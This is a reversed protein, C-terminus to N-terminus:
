RTKLQNKVRVPFRGPEGIEKIRLLRFRVEKDGSNEITITGGIGATDNMSGITTANSLAQVIRRGAEIRAGRVKKAADWVLSAKDMLFEEELAVAIKEIIEEGGNPCIIDSDSDMWIEFTSDCREIDSERLQMKLEDMSLQSNELCVKWYRALTISEYDGEDELIKESIAKLLDGDSSTFLVDDGVKLDSVLVRDIEEDETNFVTLGSSLSFIGYGGGRFHIPRGLFTKEDPSRLANEAHWKRENTRNDFEQSDIEQSDTGQAKSVFQLMWKKDIKTTVKDTHDVEKILSSVNSDGIKSDFFSIANEFWASEISYLLVIFRSAKLSYLIRRMKDRGLWGSVIVLDYHADEKIFKQFCSVEIGAVEFDLKDIYKSLVSQYNEPDERDSIVYGISKGKIIEEKFVDNILCIEKDPSNPILVEDKFRKWLRNLQNALARDPLHPFVDDSMMEGITEDGDKIVEDLEEKTMSVSRKLADSVAVRLFVDSDDIKAQDEGKDGIALLEKFIPSIKDADSPVTLPYIKLDKFPKIEKIQEDNFFDLVNQEILGKNWIFPQIGNEQLFSYDFSSNTPVLYLFATSEPLHLASYLDSIKDAYTRLGNTEDSPIDIVVKKISLGEKMFLDPLALAAEFSPAIIIEPFAPTPIDQPNLFRAGNRSIWAISVLESLKFEGFHAESLVKHSYDKNDSILLIAESEFSLGKILKAFNDGRQTGDRWRKRDDEFNSLNMPVKSHSKQYRTSDDLIYGKGELRTGKVFFSVYDGAGDPLRQITKVRTVSPGFIVGEGVSLRQKNKPFINGFLIGKFLDNLILNLSFYPVPPHVLLVNENKADVFHHAILKQSLAAFVSNSLAPFDTSFGDPEFAEDLINEKLFDSWDM